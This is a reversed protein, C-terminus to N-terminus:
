IVVQATIERGWFGLTADYFDEGGSVGSVGAAAQLASSAAQSLSRLTGYDPSLISVAFSAEPAITGSLPPQSLRQDAVRRYVACTRRDFSVVPYVRGHLDPVSLLARRIVDEPTEAEFEATLTASGTATATASATIEIAM